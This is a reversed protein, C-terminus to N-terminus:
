LDLDMLSRVADARSGSERLRSLRADRGRQETAAPNSRKGGTLMKPKEKMKEKVQPAKASLRKARMLDRVVLFMRHDGITEVEQQTIGYEGLVKGAENLFARFKTDDALAPVKESLAKRESFARQQYQNQLDAQQKERTEKLGDDLQQQWQEWAESHQKYNIWAVYDQPDTPPTPKWQELMANMREHTQHLQQATQSVRQREEEVAKRDTSLTQAKRTYDSQRLGGKVLDAVTTTTGDPLKVRANHEVFRGGTAEPEGGEKDKQDDGSDEESDGETEEGDEDSLDTEETDEDAVAENEETDTEPDDLIEALADVAAGFDAASDTETGADASTDIEDM